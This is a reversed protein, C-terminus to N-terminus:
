QLWVFAMVFLPVALAGLVAAAAGAIRGRTWVIPPSASARRWLLAAIVVLCLMPIYAEM